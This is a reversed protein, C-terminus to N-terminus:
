TKNHPLVVNQFHTVHANPARHTHRRTPFGSYDQGGYNNSIFKNWHLFQTEQSIKTM